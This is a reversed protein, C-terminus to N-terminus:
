GEQDLHIGATGFEFVIRNIQWRGSLGSLAELVASSWRLRMLYVLPASDVNIVLTRQDTVAVRCHSRFDEDVVASIASAVAQAPVFGGVLTEKVLRQILTGVRQVRGKGM